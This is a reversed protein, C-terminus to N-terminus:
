TKVQVLPTNLNENKGHKKSIKQRINSKLMAVYECAKCMSGYTPEGCIQCEHLPKSKTAIDAYHKKLKPLIALFNQIIALKTGPHEAEHANLADRVQGRFSEPVHPCENFSIDFGMLISYAMVEKETCFYLPKIRPVFLGDEVVGSRPGLRANLETNNKLLNMIVSQAEDDTNHGTAIKDYGRSKKNLIYRRFTGCISCPIIDMKKLISDLSKGFEEKYSYIKLRIKHKRCFNKLDILTKDRYGHIGEDIALAEVRGHFKQVLYLLVTSDKGGSAAVVISDKKNFLRFKSITSKVKKEFYLIFHEKCYNPNSFVAEKKCKSCKM